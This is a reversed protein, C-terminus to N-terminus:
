KFHEELKKWLEDSYELRFKDGGIHVLIDEEDSLFACTTMELNFMFTDKTYIAEPKPMNLDEAEERERWNETFIAKAIM